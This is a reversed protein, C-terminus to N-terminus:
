GPLYQSQLLIRHDFFLRVSVGLCLFQLACLLRAFSTEAGQGAGQLQLITQDLLRQYNQKM